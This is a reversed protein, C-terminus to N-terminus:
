DIWTKHTFDCSLWFVPKLEIFLVNKSGHKTSFMDVYIHLIFDNKFGIILVWYRKLCITSHSNGSFNKKMLKQTCEQIRIKSTALISLTAAMSKYANYQRICKHIIIEKEKVQWAYATLEAGFM